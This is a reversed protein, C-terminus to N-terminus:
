DLYARRLEPFDDPPAALLLGAPRGDSAKMSSLTLFGLPEGEPGIAFAEVPVAPRFIGLRRAEVPQLPVELGELWRRLQTRLQEESAAGALAGHHLLLVGSPVPETDRTFWVLDRGVFRVFGAESFEAPPQRGTMTVFRSRAESLKVSGGVLQSSWLTQLALYVVAAVVLSGGLNRTLVTGAETPETAPGRYIEDLREGAPTAAEWARATPTEESRYREFVVGCYPCDEATALRPQGCKPCTNEDQAVLRCIM